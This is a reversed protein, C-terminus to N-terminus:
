RKADACFSNSQSRSCDRCASIFNKLTYYLCYNGLHGARLAHLVASAPPRFPVCCLNISLPQLLVLRQLNGLHRFPLRARKLYTHLLGHLNLDEERCMINVRGNPLFFIMNMTISKFPPAAFHGSFACMLNRLLM